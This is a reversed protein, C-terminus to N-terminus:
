SYMRGVLKVNYDVTGSSTLQGTFTFTSFPPIVIKSQKSWNPYPQYADGVRTTLITENNIKVDFVTDIGSTNKSDMTITAVIYENGTTHQLCTTVSDTIDVQGSYGYVHNGIYNLRSGIGAPNSSGVPNGGGLM